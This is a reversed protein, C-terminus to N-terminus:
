RNGRLELIQRKHPRIEELEQTWLLVTHLIWEVIMFIYLFHSWNHVNPCSLNLFRRKHRCTLRDPSKKCPLILIFKRASM